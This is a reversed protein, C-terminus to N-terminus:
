TWFSCLMVFIATIQWGQNSFHYLNLNRAFQHWNIFIESLKILYAQVEITLKGQISLIGFLTKVLLSNSAYSIPLDVWYWSFLITFIKFWLLWMFHILSFNKKTIIIQHFLIKYDSILSAWNLIFWSQYNIM